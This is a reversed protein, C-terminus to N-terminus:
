NVKVKNVKGSHEVSKVWKIDCSSNFWLACIVATTLESNSNLEERCNSRESLWLILGDCVKHYFALTAYNYPRTIKMRQSNWLSNSIDNTARDITWRAKERYIHCNVILHTWLLNYIRVNASFYLHIYFKCRRLKLLFEFTLRGLWNIFKGKWVKGNKLGLYLDINLTGNCM